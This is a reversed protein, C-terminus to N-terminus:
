LFLVPTTESWLRKKSQGYKLIKIDKEREYFVRVKIDVWSIVSYKSFIIWIIHNYM